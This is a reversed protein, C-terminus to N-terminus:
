AAEGLRLRPDIRANLLDAATDAAVVWFALMVVIAQVVPYDRNSISVVMMRGLGPIGFVQEIVISGALIEAMTQALFAVVPTLANKLVHRRLVEGWGSGRSIATRVYDKQLESLITGRLMRVTMAVRPIALSVAAFFLCRLADGFHDLGPFAGPTFWQLAIGFVWSLLIGTFFSPVAMCLQNVVTHIGDLPGSTWRVSLLALPFSALVILLFSMGSLCLTVAIKGGLLEGVGQRYSLSQGLNGTFFGALWEGYRLPLPRNLGLEEELAALREPTADTGLMVQAPNGSIVTFATFSLFSVLFMTFAFVALRKLAYYLPFGEERRERGSSRPWTWCM